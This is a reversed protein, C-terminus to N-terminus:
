SSPDMHAEDTFFVYQFFNHVTHQLHAAGYHIREGRNQRSIKKKVYVIKYWRGNRTTAKLRNQLTRTTGNLKHYELQAEYQQDRVPNKSPSVLMQCAEKSIIPRRGLKDSLKRTRQYAKKGYKERQELWRLGQPHELHFDRELARISQSADKKDFADFFRQRKRSTRVGPNFKDAPPTHYRNSRTRPAIISNRM